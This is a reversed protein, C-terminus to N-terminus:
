SSAHSLVEELPWARSRRGPRVAVPWLADPRTFVVHQFRSPRRSEEDVIMRYCAARVNAQGVISALNNSPACAAAREHPLEGDATLLVECSGCTGKQCGYTVEVGGRVCVDGM